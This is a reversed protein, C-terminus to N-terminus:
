GMTARSLPAPVTTAAFLAAPPSQATLLLPLGPMALSPMPQGADNGPEQGLMM